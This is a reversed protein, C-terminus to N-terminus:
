TTFFTRGQSRWPDNWQHPPLDAGKYGRNALSSDTTSVLFGLDCVFRVLRLWDAEPHAEIYENINGNAMWESVMAFRNESM